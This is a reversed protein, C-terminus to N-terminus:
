RGPRSRTRAKGCGWPGRWSQQLPAGAHGTIGEATGAFDDTSQGGTGPVCAQQPLSVHILQVPGYNAPTGGYGLVLDPLQQVRLPPLLAALQAPYSRIGTLRASGGILLDATYQHPGCVAIAYSVQPHIGVADSQVKLLVQEGSLETVPELVALWGPYVQVPPLANVTVSLAVYGIISIGTVAMALILTLRKWWIQSGGLRARREGRRLRM